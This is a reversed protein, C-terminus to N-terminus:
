SSNMISLSSPLHNQRPNELYDPQAQNCYKALRPLRQWAAQEANTSFQKDPIRQSLLPSRFGAQTYFDNFPSFSYYPGNTNHQYIAFGLPFLGIHYQGFALIPFQPPLRADSFVALCAIIFVALIILDKTAFLLTKGM